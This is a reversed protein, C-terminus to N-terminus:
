LNPFLLRYIEGLPNYVHWTKNRRPWYVEKKLMAKEFHILLKKKRDAKQQISDRTPVFGSQRRIGVPMGFQLGLGAVELEMLRFVGPRDADIEEDTYQRINENPATSADGKNTADKWVDTGYEHILKMNHLACCTKFVHDLM